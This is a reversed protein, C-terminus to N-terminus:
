FYKRNDQSLRAKAQLLTVNQALGLRELNSQAATLTPAPGFGMQEWSKDESGGPWDAGPVDAFLDVGVIKCDARGLMKLIQQMYAIDRGFYVGLMCVYRIQPNSLLQKFFEWHGRHSYGRCVSDIQLRISEDHVFTSM